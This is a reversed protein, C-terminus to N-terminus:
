TEDQYINSAPITKISVRGSYLRHISNSNLGIGEISINYYDSKCVFLIEARGSTVDLEIVDGDVM